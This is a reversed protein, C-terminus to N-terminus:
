RALSAPRLDLAALEGDGGVFGEEELLYVYMCVYMCIVSEVDEERSHFLSPPPLSPLYFPARPALFLLPPMCVYSVCLM